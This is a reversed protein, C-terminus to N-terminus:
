GEFFWWWGVSRCDWGESARGGEKFHLIANCSIVFGDSTMMLHWRLNVDWAQQRRCCVPLGAALAPYELPEESLLPLFLILQCQHWSACNRYIWPAGKFAYAKFLILTLFATFQQNARLQLVSPESGSAVNLAMCQNQPTNRIDKSTECCLM